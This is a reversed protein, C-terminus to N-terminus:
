HRKFSTIHSCCGRVENRNHIHVKSIGYGHCKKDLNKALHKICQEWQLQKSGEEKISACKGEKELSKRLDSYSFSTILIGLSPM